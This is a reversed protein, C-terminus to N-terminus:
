SKAEPPESSTAPDDETPKAVAVYVQTVAVSLTNSAWGPQPETGKNWHGSISVTVQDSERAIVAAVKGALEAGLGALEGAHDKAAPNTEFAREVAQAVEMPSTASTVISFSM